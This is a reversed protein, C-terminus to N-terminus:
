IESGRGLFAGALSIRRTPQPFEKSSDLYLRFDGPGCTVVPAASDRAWGPSERPGHGEACASFGGNRRQLSQPHHRRRARRLARRKV